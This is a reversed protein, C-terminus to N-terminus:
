IRKELTVGIMRYDPLLRAWGPRGEVIVRGCGERKAYEEIGKRLKLWTSMKEGGCELAKCVLGSRMPFLQTLMAAIIRDGQVAVWLLRTGSRLQEVIDEPMPVDFAAFGSDVMAEVHGQWIKWVDQPPICVLEVDGM